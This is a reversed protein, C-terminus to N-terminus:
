FVPYPRVQNSQERTEQMWILDSRRTIPKIDDFLRNDVERKDEKERQPCEKEKVIIVPEQSLLVVGMILCGLGVLILLNTAVDM